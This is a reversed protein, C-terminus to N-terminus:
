SAGVGVARDFLLCQRRTMERASWSEAEVAKVPSVSPGALEIFARALREVAAEVPEPGGFTVVIAGARKLTSLMPSEHHVVSVLPKQLTLYTFLKSAQYACDESGILILFSADWLLQLSEFHRCM